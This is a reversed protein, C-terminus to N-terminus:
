QPLAPAQALQNIKDQNPKAVQWNRAGGPTKDSEKISFAVVLQNESMTAVIAEDGVIIVDSMIRDETPGTSWAPFGTDQQYAYLYKNESAVIVRNAAVAVRGRIGGPRDKDNARWKQTVVKSKAQSVDLAYIYGKMDGFYLTNDAFVPTSWVWGETKFRALIEPAQGRTEGTMKPDIVVVESGFTPVYLLGDPALLPTAGLASGLSIEWIYSLDRADLAYVHQDMSAVYLVNAATDVAPATWVGFSTNNYEHLVAGTKPDYAKIGKDGQGVYVMNNYVLANAIVRDTGPTAQFSPLPGIRPSGSPSFAYLTHNYAGIYITGDPGLAPRAFMFANNPATAAWDIYRGPFNGNGTLRQGSENRTTDIRFITNRYATYVYQGDQYIGAGSADLTGSATVDPWSEQPVVPTCGAVLAAILLLAGALTRRPVLSLKV